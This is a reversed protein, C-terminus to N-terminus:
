RKKPKELRRLKPMTKLGYLTLRRVAESRNPLDPQARRWEDIEHVLSSAAVMHIRMPPGQPDLRKPMLRVASDVAM